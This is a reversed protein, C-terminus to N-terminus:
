LFIKHIHSLEFSIELQLYASLQIDFHNWNMEVPLLGVLLASDLRLRYYSSLVIADQIPCTMFPFPLLEPAKVSVNWFSHTLCAPQYCGKPNCTLMYGCPKRNTTSARELSSKHNVASVTFITVVLTQFTVPERSFM